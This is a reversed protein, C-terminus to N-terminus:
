EPVNSTQQRSQQLFNQLNALKEKVYQTMKGKEGSITDIVAGQCIVNWFGGNVYENGNKDISVTGTPAIIVSGYIEKVKSFQKAISNEGQGTNCAYFVFISSNSNDSNLYPSSRILLSALTIPSSIETFKDLISNQTGHAFLEFVNQISLAERRNMHKQLGENMKLLVRKKEETLGQQKSIQIPTALINIFERGDPDVFKVPNGNCYAYPTIWPYASAYITMCLIVLLLVSLRKTRM